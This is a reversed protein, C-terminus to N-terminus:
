NGNLDTISIYVKDRVIMEYMEAWRKKPRANYALFTERTMKVEKTVVKGNQTIVFTITMVDEPKGEM